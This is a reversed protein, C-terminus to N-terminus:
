KADVTAEDSHMLQKENNVLNEKAKFKKIEKERYDKNYDIGLQEKYQKNSEYQEDTFVKDYIITISNISVVSEPSFGYGSPPPNTQIRIGKLYFGNADGGIAPKSILKRKTPDEEYEPNDFIIHFSEMSPVMEFPQKMKIEKEPGNPTTSYVLIFEDYQRNTCVNMKISKIYSVNEICGGGSGDENLFSSYNPKIIYSATADKPVNSVMYMKNTIKFDKKQFHGSSSNIEFEYQNGELNAATESSYLIKEEGHINAICIFFSFVTLLLFRKTM